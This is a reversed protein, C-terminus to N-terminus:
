YDRQDDTNMELESGPISVALVMNSRGRAEESLNQVFNFLQGALGSKRNRSVYNMLEDMLILTPGEPLFARIVDGATAVGREDHAAVAAFGQQGGLQWAVEGWPTRRLPEGGEGGRGSISDFETGVFIATAARPVS